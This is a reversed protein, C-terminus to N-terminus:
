LLFMGICVDDDNILLFVKLILGVILVDNVFDFVFMKILDVVFLWIGIYLFFYIIIFKLDIVM